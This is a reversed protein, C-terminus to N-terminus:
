MERIPYALRSLGCSKLPGPTGPACSRAAAYMRAPLKVRCLYSVIVHFITLVNGETAMFERSVVGTALKFYGSNRNQSSHPKAPIGVEKRTKECTLARKKSM